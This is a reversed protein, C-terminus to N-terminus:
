GLYGRDLAMEKAAERVAIRTDNEFAIAFSAITLTLQLQILDNRQNDLEINVYDETDDIYERVEKLRDGKVITNHQVSDDWTMCDQPISTQIHSAWDFEIATSFSRFIDSNSCLRHSFRIYLDMPIVVYPRQPSWDTTVVYTASASANSFIVVANTVEKLNLSDRFENRSDIVQGLKLDVYIPEMLWWNGQSQPFILAQKYKRNDAVTNRNVGVMYYMEEWLEQSGLGWEKVEQQFSSTAILFGAVNHGSVWGDNLIIQM